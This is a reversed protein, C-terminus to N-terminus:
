SEPGPPKPKEAGDLHHDGAPAAASGLDPVRHVGDAGLEIPRVDRASAVPLTAYLHPFPQGGRSVEWRLADGLEAAELAILLLDAQGAFHRALTGAVQSADSLHIYGDTLDIPAGVFEGSATAELWQARTVIKYVRM